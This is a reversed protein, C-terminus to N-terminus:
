SPRPARCPARRGRSATRAAPRRPRGRHLGDRFRRRARGLGGGGFGSAPAPRCAQRDPRWARLTRCRARWARRLRRRAHDREVGVHPVGGEAVLELLREGLAEVLVEDGLLHHDPDAIPSAARPAIGNGDVNAANRVRAASKMRMAAILLTLTFSAPECAPTDIPSSPGDCIASSSRPSTGRAASSRRARDTRRRSCPAAPRPRHGPMRARGVHARAPRLRRDDVSGVLREVIPPSFTTRSLAFSTAVTTPAPTVSNSANFAYSWSFAAPMAIRTM